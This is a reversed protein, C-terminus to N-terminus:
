FYTRETCDSRHPAIPKAFTSEYNLNKGAEL